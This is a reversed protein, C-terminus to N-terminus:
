ESSEPPASDFPSAGDNVGFQSSVDGLAAWGPLVPMGTEWETERDRFYTTIYDTRDHPDQRATAWKIMLRFAADVLDRIPLTLLSSGTSNIYEGNAWAWNDILWGWM